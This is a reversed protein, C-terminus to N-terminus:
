EGIASRLVPVVSRTNPSDSPSRHGQVRDGELAPRVRSIRTITIFLRRRAACGALRPIIRKRCKMTEDGNLTPRHDHFAVTSPLAACFKYLEQSRLNDDNMKKPGSSDTRGARMQEWNKGVANWCIKRREGENATVSTEVRQIKVTGFRSFRM